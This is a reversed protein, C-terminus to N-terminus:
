IHLNRLEDVDKERQNRKPKGPQKRMDPPMVKNGAGMPWLEEGNTPLILHPYVRHYTEVKFYDDVYDEPIHKKHTIVSVAHKCSICTLDWKYCACKKAAIDM